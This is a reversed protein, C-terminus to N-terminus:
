EKGGYIATSDGFSSRISHDMMQITILMSIIMPKTIGLRHLALCAAVHAIRDYCLHTDNSYVAMMRKM